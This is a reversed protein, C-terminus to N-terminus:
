ESGTLGALEQLRRQEELAGELEQARRVKDMTEEWKAIQASWDKQLHRWDVHPAVMKALEALQREWEPPLYKQVASNRLAFCAWLATAEVNGICSNLMEPLLPQRLDLRLGEASPNALHAASRLTAHTGESFWRYLTRYEAKHEAAISKAIESEKIWAKRTVWEEAREPRKSLYRATSGCEYAARLAAFVESYCGSVALLAAARIQHYVRGFLLLTAAENPFVKGSPIEYEGLLTWILDLAVAIRGLRASVRPMAEQQHDRDRGFLRLLAVPVQETEPKGTM